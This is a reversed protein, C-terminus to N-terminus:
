LSKKTQLYHSYLDQPNQVKLEVHGCEGCIDALLETDLREEIIFAGPAADVCASLNGNGDSNKCRIPVNPINKKSGCIPCENRARYHAPSYRSLNLLTLESDGANAGGIGRKTESICDKLEEVAESLLEKLVTTPRKSAPMSKDIAPSSAIEPKRGQKEINASQPAEKVVTELMAGCAQCFNLPEDFTESCKPCKRM